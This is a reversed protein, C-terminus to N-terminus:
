AEQVDVQIWWMQHLFSNLSKCAKTNSQGISDWEWSVAPFLVVSSFESIRWFTSKIEAPTESLNLYCCHSNDLRKGWLRCADLERLLSYHFLLPVPHTESAPHLPKIESSTPSWSGLTHCLIFVTYKKEKKTGARQVSMESVPLVSPTSSVQKGQIALALCRLCPQLVYINVRHEALLWAINDGRRCPCLGTLLEFWLNRLGRSGVM